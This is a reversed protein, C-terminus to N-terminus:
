QDFASGHRSFLSLFSSFSFAIFCIILSAAAMSLVVAEGCLMELTRESTGITPLGASNGKMRSSCVCRYLPVQSARSLLTGETHHKNAELEKYPVRWFHCM